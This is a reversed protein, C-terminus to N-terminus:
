GRSLDDRDALASTAADGSLLRPPRRVVRDRGAPHARLDRAAPRGSGRLLPGPGAPDRPRPRAALRLADLDKAAAALDAVRYVLIPRDGELHGALVIRPPGDTLEIMAVRTGMAEIAFM